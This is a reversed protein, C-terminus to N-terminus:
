LKFENLEKHKMFYFGGLIMSLPLIYMVYILNSNTIILGAIYSGLPMAFAILSDVTSNVRGLLKKPTTIHFISNFGINYIAMAFYGIFFLALNLYVNRILIACLWSLGNLFLLFGLGNSKNGRKIIYSSLMSGVIGSFGRIFLFYGYYREGDFYLKSYIPYCVAQIANFFNIMLFIITINKLLKNKDVFLLGEKLEQLYSSVTYKEDTNEEENEYKKSVTFKIISLVIIALIYVLLDYKFMVFIGFSAIMISTISNIFSDLVRSSFEFISNAFLIENKEVMKPVLTEQIAYSFISATTSLFILVLLVSIPLYKNYLIFIILSIVQVFISLYLLKKTNFKDIIPGLFFIFMDPILTITFFLGLYYSNDLNDSIYWLMNMYFISDAINLIIVLLLLKYIKRM